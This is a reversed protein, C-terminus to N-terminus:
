QRLIWLTHPSTEVFALSHSTGPNLINYVEGPLPVTSCYKFKPFLRYNNKSHIVECFTSTVDDSKQLPFASSRRSCSFTSLNECYDVNTGPIIQRRGSRLFWDPSIQRPGTKQKTLYRKLMQFKSTVHSQKCIMYFHDSFGFINFNFRISCHPISFFSM